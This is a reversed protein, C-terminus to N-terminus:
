KDQSKLLEEKLGKLQELLATRKELLPNPLEGIMNKALDNHQESLAEFSKEHITLRCSWDLDGLDLNYSTSSGLYLSIVDIVRNTINIELDIDNKWMIYSQPQTTIQIKALIDSVNSKEVINESNTTQNFSESRIYLSTNQSVNVNKISTANTFVSPTQYSFVFSNRMGICTMFVPSNEFIRISLSFSAPAGAIAFTCKGANRDYTFDFKFLVTYLQYLRAQLKNAVEDLLTLINYNGNTIQFSTSFYSAEYTSEFNISNNANTILQFTYPIEASGVRVSFFNNPNTLVLPRFLSLSFESSTGSTRKESNIFINYTKIIQAM